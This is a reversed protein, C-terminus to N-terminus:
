IDELKKSWYFPGFISKLKEDKYKKVIKGNGKNSDNFLEGNFRVGYGEDKATAYALLNVPAKSKLFNKESFTAKLEAWNNSLKYLYGDTSSISLIKDKQSYIFKVPKILDLAIDIENENPSFGCHLNKKSLMCSYNDGYYVDVLDKQEAQSFGRYLNAFRGEGEALESAYFYTKVSGDDNFFVPVADRNTMLGTIANNMLKIKQNGDFFNISGKKSQTIIGEEIDLPFKNFRGLLGRIAASRTEQKELPDVTSNYVDLAYSTEIGYSGQLEYTSDCAGGIDLDGGKLSGHTCLVHAFGDIHRAEHILTSALMFESFKYQAITGCIHMIAGERPIVYAMVGVSACSRSLFNEVKIEKIRSTFYDYAGNSLIKSNSESTQILQKDIKKLYLLAKSTQYLINGDDCLAKEKDITGAMTLKVDSLIDKIEDQNLCNTTSALAFTSTMLCYLIIFSTKM